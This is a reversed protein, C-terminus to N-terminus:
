LGSGAVWRRGAAGFPVVVAESDWAAGLPGTVSLRHGSTAPTECRDGAVAPLPPWLLQPGAWSRDPGAAIRGARSSRVLLGRRVPSSLHAWCPVVGAWGLWVRCLLGDLAGPASCSWGFGFCPCGVARCLVLVVLRCWRGASISELLVHSHIDKWVNASFDKSYVAKTM